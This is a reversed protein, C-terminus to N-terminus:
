QLRQRVPCPRARSAPCALSLYLRDPTLEQIKCFFFGSEM